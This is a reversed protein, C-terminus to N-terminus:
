AEKRISEYDSSTLFEHFALGPRVDKVDLYRSYTRQAKSRRISKFSNIAATRGTDTCCYWDYLEDRQYMHVMGLRELELLDMNNHAACYYNRYPKPKHKNPDNIGLMHRLTDLQENTLYM